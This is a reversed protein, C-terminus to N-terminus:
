AVGEGTLSPDGSRVAQEARRLTDQNATLMSDSRKGALLEKIVARCRELDAAATRYMFVDRECSTAFLEDQTERALRAAAAAQERLWLASDKM